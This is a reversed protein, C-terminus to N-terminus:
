SSPAKKIQNEAAGRQLATLGLLACRSRGAGIPAGILKVIDALGLKAAKEVKLGVIKETLLSMAALSLACGRGDFKIEAVRGARDLRVFVELDDGCSWNAEHRSFTPQSLRGFNRPHRYHDLINERYILETDTTLPTGGRRRTPSM